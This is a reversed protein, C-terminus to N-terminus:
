GFCPPARGYEFNRYVRVFCSPFLVDHKETCLIEPHWVLTTTVTQPIALFDCVVCHEDESPLQQSKEPESPSDHDHSCCSDEHDHDAVSHNRHTCGSLLHLGGGVVLPFSAVISVILCFIRNKLAFAM